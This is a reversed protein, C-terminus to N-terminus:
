DSTDSAGFLSPFGSFTRLADADRTSRGQGDRLVMTSRRPGEAEHSLEWVSFLAPRGERPVVETTAVVHLAARAAAHAVRDAARADGCLVLRGGPALMPAGAEIYAEVGGRTEIRARARQDDRAARAADAPFYPPTGTVLEFGSGQRALLASDRLDGHAITVRGGLANREVNRRLLEFSPDQAEVGVLTAEPRKWALLLLVSGLGCGLDLIRTALPRAHHAVFATAVDDSSFRHGASRQWVRIDPTLLDDTLPGLVPDHATPKPPM